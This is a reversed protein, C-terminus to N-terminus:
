PNIKFHNEYKKNPYVIMKEAYGNEFLRFNLSEEFSSKRDLYVIKLRRNYKDFEEEDSELFVVYNNELVINKTFNSAEKFGPDECEPTNIYLFRVKYTEDNEDQVWFTDGDIFKTVKAEILEETCSCFIFSSILIIVFFIKKSKSM